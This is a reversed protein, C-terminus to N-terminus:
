GANRVLTESNELTFGCPQLYWVEKKGDSAPNNLFLGFGPVCASRSVTFGWDMPGLSTLRCSHLENVWGWEGLGGGGGDDLLRCTERDYGQRLCFMPKGAGALLNAFLVERRDV